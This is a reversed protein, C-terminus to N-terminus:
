LAQARIDDQRYAIAQGLNVPTDATLRDSIAVSGNFLLIVTSGMNFRGMEQGQTLSIAPGYNYSRRQPSGHTRTIMGDWVTEIGSVFLAGVLIMAMLGAETEFLTILRENRTFLGPLNHTTRRNVSFLRGPIYITERLTGAVPMHIRHYDRPSLYITAFRGDRFYGAMEDASGLLNTLSYDFGKAQFIRDAAINGSQSVTGDVPCLIAGPTEDLPRADPALERTFFANFSDYNKPDSYRAQSMDVSYLRIFLRIFLDKFLPWRRRTLWQVGRSLAHHPLLMQAFILLKDM